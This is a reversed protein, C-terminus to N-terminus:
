VYRAGDEETGLQRLQSVPDHLIKNVLLRALNEVRKRDAEGLNPWNQLTRSVEQDRLTELRHRLAVITPVVELSELWQRFADCEEGVIVEAQTAAIARDKRNEETLRSLDDIDYLFASDLKAIDPDLDRPVAIDIFFMPRQRRQKLAARAMPATLMYTSSGTSSLIIDARPLWETLAELPFARGNFTHALSEARALTRNTVLIERIGNSVLHRAALECMEGAGILLCSHGDLRGFIQKALVVATSAISVANEAITTETRVRKAVRFAHHFFRNLLLGSTGAMVAQRYSEKMQGLIQAEGVVMSDLSSAVRLGHRVAEQELHRYLHPVIEGPEVGRRGALWRVVNGIGGEIQRSCFYIEVRNCTSLILGESIGEMTVLNQLDQTLTEPPFALKERLAVPASKHSIGIVGLKM